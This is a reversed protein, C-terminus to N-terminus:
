TISRITARTTTTPLAIAVFVTRAPLCLLLFFLHHSTNRSKSTTLGKKKKNKLLTISSESCFQPPIKLYQFMNEYTLVRKRELKDSGTLAMAIWQSNIFQWFESRWFKVQELLRPICFYTFAQKLIALDWKLKMWKLIQLFHNLSKNHDVIPLM